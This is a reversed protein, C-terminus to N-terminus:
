LLEQECIPGLKLRNGDIENRNM